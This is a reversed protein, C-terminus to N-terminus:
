HDNTIGLNRLRNKDTDQGRRSKDPSHSFINKM